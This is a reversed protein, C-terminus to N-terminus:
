LGIARASLVQSGAETQAYTCRLRGEVAVEEEVRVLEDKLLRDLAGYLTGVGFACAVRHFTKSM